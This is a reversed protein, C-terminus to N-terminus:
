PRREGPSQHHLVEAAEDVSLQLDQDTARGTVLHFLSVLLMLAMVSGAVVGAVYIVSMPAGMVPSLTGANIRAQVLSGWVLVLCCALMILDGILACAQKGTRSLRSVLSDIGLHQRRHMGVVAGMFTLWVFLYRSLEESVTIGSNFGYRLLVNGFVLLVMLALTIWALEDFLRAIAALLRDV